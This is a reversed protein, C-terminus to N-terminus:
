SFGCKADIVDVLDNGQTIAYNAANWNRMNVGHMSDIQTGIWDTIPTGVEAPTAPGIQTRLFAVQSTMTRKEVTRAENTEGSSRGTTAATSARQKGAATIIRAARDWATCAAAKAAQTDSSSYTLPDPTVVNVTHRAPEIPHALALGSTVVAGLAVAFAATAATIGTRRRWRGRMTMVRRYRSYTVGPWRRPRM